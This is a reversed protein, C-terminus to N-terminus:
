ARRPVAPADLAGGLIEDNHQGIRPAPRRIPPREDDFKIPLGVFPKELEPAEQLIEVADTQPEAAVEALTNIPACPVGAAELRELWEARTRKRMATEIQPMIEDKHALRLANTKFRPEAEWEAHGIARAFKMFLRDNAAAVMIEGDSAELAQFVIIRGSGTRHRIPVTGMAKYAGFGLMM